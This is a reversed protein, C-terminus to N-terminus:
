DILAKGSVIKLVARGALEQREKLPRVVIGERNHKAGKVLSPGDAMAKVKDFDFPIEAVLPATPINYKEAFKAVDNWSLFETGQLIDFLYYDIEGKPIDYRRKTKHCEVFGIIEGYLVVEPNEKCLRELQPYKALIKFWSSEDKMEPKFWVTRSGIHLRDQFTYRSNAGDLKEFCLVPEGEKFIEHAYREFAELDYDKFYCTPPETAHGCLLTPQYRTVGLLESVDDGEQSGVPAPVMLGYSIVGRLRMACVRHYRTDGDIAARFNPGKLWSFEPRDTDVVSDPLIYAGLEIGQWDEARLCVQYGYVKQIVLSDANPHKEPCIKVIDVRHTSKKM